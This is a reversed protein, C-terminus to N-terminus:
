FVCMIPEAVPRREQHLLAFRTNSLPPNRPIDLHKNCHPRPPNPMGSAPMCGACVEFGNGWAVSRPWLRERGCPSYLGSVKTLTSSAAPPEDAVDLCDAPPIWRQSRWDRSHYFLIYGSESNKSIDSTLGYFEEIAQADIKQFPLTCPRFRSVNPVRPNIELGKYCVGKANSPWYKNLKGQLTHVAEYCFYIYMSDLSWPKQLDCVNLTLVVHIFYLFNPRHAFCFM